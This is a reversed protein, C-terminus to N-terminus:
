SKEQVRHLCAISSREDSQIMPSRDPIQTKAADSGETIEKIRLATYLGTDITPKNNTVPNGKRREAKATKREQRQSTKDITKQLPM